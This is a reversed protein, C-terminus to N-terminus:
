INFDCLYTIEYSVYNSRNAKEKSAHQFLMSFRQTKKEGDTHRETKKLDLIQNNIRRKNLMIGYVKAGM